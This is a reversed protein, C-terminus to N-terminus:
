SDARLAGQLTGFARLGDLPAGLHVLAQAVEPRIGVLSVRAGLLRAAREVQVIGQAVQTDVVPVGTIDLILHNARSHALTDLARSQVQGLRITDLAGVLPMVWTEASVPLVPVSLEEITRRQVDLEGLLRGQDAATAEVTALAQQLAVTREAVHEELSANASELGTQAARLADLSASLRRHFLWLLAFVLALGVTTAFFSILAAAAPDIPPALRVWQNIAAMAVGLAWAGILMRKLLLGGLAPLAVAVAVIPVLLVAPSFGPVAFAIGVGTILIGAVTALVARELQGRRAYALSAACLPLVPLCAAGLLILSLADFVIGLTLYFALSGGAAILVWIASQRVRQAQVSPDDARIPSRQM